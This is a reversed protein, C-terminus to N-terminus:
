DQLEEFSLNGEGEGPTGPEEDWFGGGSYRGFTKVRDEEKEKFFASDEDGEDDEDDQGGNTGVLSVNTNNLESQRLLMKFEFNDIVSQYASSSIWADLSSNM